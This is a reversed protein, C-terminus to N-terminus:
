SCWIQCTWFPAEGPSPAILFTRRPSAGMLIGQAKGFGYHKGMLEGLLQTRFKDVADGTIIQFLVFGASHRRQDTM